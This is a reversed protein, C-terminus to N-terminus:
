INLTFSKRAWFLLLDFLTVKVQLLLTLCGGAVSRQVTFACKLGMLQSSWYLFSAQRKSKKIKKAWHLGFCCINVRAMNHWASSLRNWIKMYKQLWKQIVKFTWESPSHLKTNTQVAVSVSKLNKCIVSRSRAPVVCEGEGRGEERKSQRKNKTVSVYCNM